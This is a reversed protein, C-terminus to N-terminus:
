FLLIAILSWGVLLGQQGTTALAAAINLFPGALVQKARACANTTENKGVRWLANTEGPM